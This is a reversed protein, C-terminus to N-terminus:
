RQPLSHDEEELIEIEQDQNHGKTSRYTIEQHDITKDGDAMDKDDRGEIHNIDHYGVM